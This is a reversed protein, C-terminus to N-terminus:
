YVETKGSWASASYNGNPVSLNQVLTGACTANYAYAGFFKSGTHATIGAYWTGTRIDGGTGSYVWPAFVGHRRPDVQGLCVQKPHPCRGRDM